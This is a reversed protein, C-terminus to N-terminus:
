GAKPGFPGVLSSRSEMTGSLGTIRNAKSPCEAHTLELARSIALIVLLVGSGDPPTISRSEEPFGEPVRLSGDATAKTM